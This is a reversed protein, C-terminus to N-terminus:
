QLLLQGQPQLTPLALAAVCSCGTQKTGDAKKHNRKMKEAYNEMRGMLETLEQKRELAIM